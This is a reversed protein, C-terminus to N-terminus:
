VLQSRALFQGYPFLMLGKLTVLIDGVVMYTVLVNCNEQTDKKFINRFNMYNM